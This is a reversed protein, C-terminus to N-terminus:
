RRDMAKGVERVLRDGEIEELTKPLALSWNPWENVTGPMNPREHVGQADELTGLLVMSPAEALLKYTRRIVERLSANERLKAMRKLRSRIARFGKEDAPMGIRAQAALDRGSWLGAVTPLDHTTVAAVALEPYKPPGTPEFWLVRYSLVRRSALEERVGAEVTGLDEGIVLAGNRRSELALLGLLDDSPYRVYCGEQPKGGPPIWYLRFLGMVHDVRLGGAGRLSARVTDVFPTYRADRLKHPVFPQLGWDQGQTNFPDPPAGVHVDGALADQWMWADAGAPDMGVPLDQVIEIEVAARRFQEELLWQLWKHFGVRGAQKEAFQRVASSDPHRYRGPWMRWDAGHAEALACFTAFRELLFTDPVKQTWRGSPRRYFLNRVGKEYIRRLAEIKLRFVADRDIRRQGNLKKGEAALPELDVGRASAGPVDEVCLYLPNRFCRSSPFYPSAQQPLTPTAACLPSIQLVGAGLEGASWRALRRLDRLDGIGWSGASRLAYGQVSWGWTPLGEPLFCQRPCVALPVDPGGGAPRLLHYGLPLRRPLTEAVRLVGGDELLLDSPSAIRLSEGQRVVRLLEERRQSAKEQRGMAARIAALTKARASHWRGSADEYGSCVGWADAQRARRFTGSGKEAGTRRRRKGRTSV